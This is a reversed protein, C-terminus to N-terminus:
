EGELEVCAVDGLDYAAGPVRLVQAAGLDRGVLRNLHGRPDGADVNRLAGARTVVDFLRDQRGFRQALVVDDRARGARVSRGDSVVNADEAIHVPGLQRPQGRRAGPASGDVRPL